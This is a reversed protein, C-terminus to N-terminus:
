VAAMEATKMSSIPKMAITTYTSLLVLSKAGLNQHHGEVDDGQETGSNSKLQKLGM